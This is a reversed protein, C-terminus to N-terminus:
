RRRGNERAYTIRDAASMRNWEEESVEAPGIERGAGPIGPVGRNMRMLAEFAEIQTKTYMMSTLAEAQAAPLKAGVWQRVAGVREKAKPGLLDVQEALAERLQTQEALEQKLGMSLMAEFQDQTMKNAHAFDRAAIVRPDDANIASQGDPATFGDPFQFDGPLRVDYGEATEPFAPVAPALVAGESAPAELTANENAIIPANEDM